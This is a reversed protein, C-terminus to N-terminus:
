TFKVELPWSVSGLAGNELVLSALFAVARKSLNCTRTGGLINRYTKHMSYETLFLDRRHTSGQNLSTRRFTTHRLTHAISVEIVHFELGVYFVYFQLFWIQMSRLYINITEELVDRPSFKYTVRHAYSILTRM